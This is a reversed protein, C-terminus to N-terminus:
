ARPKIYIFAGLNGRKGHSARHSFLKDSNCCTCVDTIDLHERQIGAGMLIKENAKWLDLQFKGNGKDDMIDKVDEEDFIESFADAVDQSVEYCARCISPGIAAIIKGPDSGYESAMYEVMKKGIRAVTGRWGSHAMAAVEHEPDYFILPVCDACSTYMPIGAVDTVLGDIGPITERLIGDGKDKETVKRIKTEHIQASLVLDEYPFGVADGFRRYNELVKERDDGRNFSFNMTSFEGCSVGGMRTSFAHVVGAEDLKPFTLYVVGNKEHEVTSHNENAYIWDM